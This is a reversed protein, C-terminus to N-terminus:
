YSEILQHNAVPKRQLPCDTCGVRQRVEGITKYVREMAQQQSQNSAQIYARRIIEIAQYCPQCGDHSEKGM